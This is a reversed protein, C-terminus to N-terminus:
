TPMSVPTPEQQLLDLVEEKLQAFVGASQQFLKAMSKLEEDTHIKQTAALESMLAGINFLVAAREYSM